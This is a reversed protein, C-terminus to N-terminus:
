RSRTRSYGTRDCTWGPSIRGRERGCWRFLGLRELRHQRIEVPHQEGPHRVPLARAVEGVERRRGRLGPDQGLQQRRAQVLDPDQPARRGASAPARPPSARSAAVARRGVPHSGRGCRPSPTSWCSPRARPPAVRRARGGRRARMLARASTSRSPRGVARARAACPEPRRRTGAGDPRARGRRRRRPRRPRRSSTWRPSRGPPRSRRGKRRPRLTAARRRQM